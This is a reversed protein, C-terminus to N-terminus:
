LVVLPLYTYVSSQDRLFSFLEKVKSKKEPTDTLLVICGASGPIANEPHLGVDIRRKSGDKPDFIVRKDHDSTFIPFFEGIGTKGPWTGPNVPKLLLKHSGYPIPSKGRQWSTNEWGRQGSRAPLRSFLKTVEEGVSKQVTLFGEISGAQRDYYIKFMEKEPM